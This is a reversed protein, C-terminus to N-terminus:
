KLRSLSQLAEWPRLALKERVEIPATAHSVGVIILAV